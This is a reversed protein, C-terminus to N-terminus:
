ALPTKRQRNEADQGNAALQVTLKASLASGQTHANLAALSQLETEKKMQEAIKLEIKEAPSLAMYDRFEQTASTTAVGPEAISAQERRRADPNHM